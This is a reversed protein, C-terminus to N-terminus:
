NIIGSLEAASYILLLVLGFNVSARVKPQHLHKRILAGGLAWTSTACFATFAFFIASVVLIFPNNAVAALFTSYLTLGYIIVKPNLAQLLFGMKFAMPPQGTEKFDYSARATGAALWLIYVAGVIRLTPEITVLAVNFLVHKHRLPLKLDCYIFGAVLYILVLANPEDGVARMFVM